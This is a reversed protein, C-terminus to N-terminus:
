PRHILPTRITSAILKSAVKLHQELYKWRVQINTKKDVYIVHINNKEGVYIVHGCILLITVTLIDEPCYHSIENEIQMWYAYHAM